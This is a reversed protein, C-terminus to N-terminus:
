LDSEATPEQRSLLRGGVSAGARDAAVVRVSSLGSELGVTLQAATFRYFPAPRGAGQAPRVRSEIDGAWSLSTALPQSTPRSLRTAAMLDTITLAGADRLAVVCALENSRRATELEAM